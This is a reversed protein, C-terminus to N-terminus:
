VGINSSLHSSHNIMSSYNMKKGDRYSNSSYVQIKNGSIHKKHLSSPKYGTGAGYKKYTASKPLTATLKAVPYIRIKCGADSSRNSLSNPERSSLGHSVRSRNAKFSTVGTSTISGNITGLPPKNKVGRSSNLAGSPKFKYKRQYQSYM